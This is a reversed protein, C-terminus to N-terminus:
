KNNKTLEDKYIYAIGITTLIASAILSNKPNQKFLTRSTLYTLGGVIGTIAVSGAIKAKSNDGGWAAGVVGAVGIAGVGFAAGVKLRENSVADPLKGVKYVGYTSLGLILPLTIKRNKVFIFKLGDNVSQEVVNPPPPPADGKGENVPQSDNPMPLVSPSSVINIPVAEENQIVSEEDM